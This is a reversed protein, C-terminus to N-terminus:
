DLFFKKMCVQALWSEQTEKSSLPGATTPSENKIDSEPGNVLLSIINPALPPILETPQLLPRHVPWQACAVVDLEVASKDGAKERPIGSALRPELGYEILAGGQCAIVYLSEATRRQLRDRVVPGVNLPVHGSLPAAGRPPAFCCSVRVVASGDDPETAKRTNSLAPSARTSGVGGTSGSAGSGM